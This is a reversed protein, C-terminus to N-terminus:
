RKEVVEVHILKVSGDLEQEMVWQVVAVGNISFFSIVTPNKGGLEVFPFGRAFYAVNRGTVTACYKLRIDNDVLGGTPGSALLIFDNVFAAWGREIRPSLLDLAREAQRRCFREFSKLKPDEVVLVYDSYSGFYNGQFYIIKPAPLYHGSLVFLTAELGGVEIRRSAVPHGAESWHNVAEHLEDPEASSVAVPVAVLLLGLCIKM